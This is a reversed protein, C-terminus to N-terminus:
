DFSRVKELLQELDIPKRIVGNVNAQEIENAKTVDMGTVFLIPLNSLHLNERINEAVEFGNMGPMMVDLLVLHPLTLEIKAIAESGSEATDVSYGEAELFAQLLFCNDPIDDVVLIPALNHKTGFFYSDMVKSVTLPRVNKM